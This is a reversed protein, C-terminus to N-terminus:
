FATEMALSSEVCYDECVLYFEKYYTFQVKNTASTSHGKLIMGHKCLKIINHFYKDKPCFKRVSSM